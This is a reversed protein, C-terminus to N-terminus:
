KVDRIKMEETKDEYTEVINEREDKSRKREKRRIGM